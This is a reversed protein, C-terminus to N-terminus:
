RLKAVAHFIRARVAGNEDVPQSWVAHLLRRKDDVLLSEYEGIWRPGHRETSLAAFPADNIRGAQKCAAGGAACAAHAFRGGGRSDYWAVHVDGTTPDLAVNPVMHTACPPDDGLRVRTWSKPEVLRGAADKLKATALVLDWLGDRGGRTYVIYVFGRRDDVAISPNSFFFPLKEELNSAVSPRTFTAGGDSSVAYEVKHSADGYAGRPGGDLTVLHLRGDTGVAANGYIGALATRPPGFTAGGDRSARVRLGDAAYMVYVIEAGRKAPDPGIAIMPKDLCDPAGKCDGPDQVATAASWTAGRDRSTALSIQQDDRRDFALWVAYLTGKADRAMWPDFNTARTTAFPLDAGVKPGPGVRALGLANGDVLKGRAVFLAALTGDDALAAAPELQYLGPSAASSLQSVAGFAPDRAPNAPAPCTRPAMATMGPLTCAKWVPDCVYGENTRCNNDDGCRALCVEGARWTPVCAGDCPGGAAGCFSMCYGGPMPGCTRDPGCPNGPKCSAGIPLAAPAAPEADVAPTIPAADPAAKPSPPAVPHSPGSCAMVAVTYLSACRM